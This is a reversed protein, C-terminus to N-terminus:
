HKWITTNSFVRSLEKSLLSILGTLGLLFWGQTNMPLVSASASAGTSWWRICLALENSFVKISPFISLLLLLPRHPIPHNSPMMSEISKLKLLSLFITISLSAQCAATCPTVFLQVCGLLQVSSFQHPGCLTLYLQTILVCVWPWNVINLYNWTFLSRVWGFVYMFGNEERLIQCFHYSTM